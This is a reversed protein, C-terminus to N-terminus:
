HPSGPGLLRSRLTKEPDIDATGEGVQYEAVLRALQPAQLHRACRCRGPEAGQAADILDPCCHRGAGRTPRSQVVRMRVRDRGVRQDLALAGPEAHQRRGTEAIQEFDLAERDWLGHAVVRAPWEWQDLTLHDDLDRLTEVRLASHNAREVLLRDQRGGPLEDGAVCFDQDDAEHVAVAIGHM